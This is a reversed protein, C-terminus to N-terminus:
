EAPSIQKKNWAETDMIMKYAIKWCNKWEDTADYNLSKYYRLINWRKWFPLDFYLKTALKLVEQESM